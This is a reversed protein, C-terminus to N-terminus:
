ADNTLQQCSRELSVECSPASSQGEFRGQLDDLPWLTWFNHITLFSKVPGKWRYTLHHPILKCNIHGQVTSEVPVTWNWYFCVQVLMHILVDYASFPKRVYQVTWSNCYGSPRFSMSTKLMFPNWGKFLYLLGFLSLHPNVGLLYM